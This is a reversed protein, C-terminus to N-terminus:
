EAAEREALLAGVGKLLDKARIPKYFIADFASDSLLKYGTIAAVPVDAEEKLLKALKLGNIGPMDLDTLVVDVDDSFLAFAQVSNSARKIAYGNRSFLESMLKLMEDNDDVLLITKQTKPM